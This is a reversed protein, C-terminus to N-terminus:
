VEAQRVADNFLYVISNFNVGWKDSFQEFFGINKAGFLASTRM